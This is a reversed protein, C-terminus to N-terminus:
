MLMTCREDASLPSTIYSIATQVTGMEHTVPETVAALKLVSIRSWRQGLRLQSLPKASLMVAEVAASEPDAM